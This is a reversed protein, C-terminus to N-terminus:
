ENDDREYKCKDSFVQRIYAGVECMLFSSDDTSLFMSRKSYNNTNSYVKVDKEVFRPHVNTMNCYLSRRHGNSPYKSLIELLHKKHFIIPAHVEYDNTKYDGNILVERAKILDAAYSGIRGYTALRDNLDGLSYYPLERILRMIFFDDNMMIFPDSIEPNICAMYLKRNVKEFKKLEHHYDIDTDIRTVEESLWPIEKSCVFVKRHPMNKLSRLSYRLDNNSGDALVPYFVDLNKTIM